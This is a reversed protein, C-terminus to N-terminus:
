PKEYLEMLVGHASKPHVFAYRTGDDRHRIETAMSAGENELRKVSAEIDDVLLCVHHIGEGRKERFRGIANEPDLPQLLELEADGVPLIAVEVGEAAVEERASLAVGLADRYFALATDLSRVAIAVHHIRMVLGRNSLFSSLAAGDDEKYPLRQASIDITGPRVTNSV